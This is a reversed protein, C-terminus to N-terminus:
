YRDNKVFDRWYNLTDELIKEFPIKQEWGTKSRFKSIDGILRPVNTPRVFKPEIEVSIKGKYTSLAIFKNLAEKFTHIHEAKESGILYLEGVECKETATWYAEVIDRIHTFNRRDETHGVKIVPPQKGAEIKAIQYAYSSLGFVNDRRPGEHNFTRVRIPRMGYSRFYVYSIFDQAIKTVAYPNVPRIQTNENIPVESEYIEGYEEGSGPMLIKPNIGAEKVAEFLNVTGKYNVDMYHSPNQWSPSVFSEAAFHFIRDPKVKKIIERIAVPDTLDCDHWTVKDMIHRVNRLRSLNWRKLGHVEMGKELMYDAMHSGVFGTIGTILIKEKM